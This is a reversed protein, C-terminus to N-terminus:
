GPSALYGAAQQHFMTSYIGDLLVLEDHTGTEVVRGGDLVVIKDAERVASLRHTIIVAVRGTRYERLQTHLRFEAEADLGSSPEDMILLDADERFLARAVAVRQWQGGSLTTRSSHGDSDGDPAFVRSLLTEYGRALRSLTRHVDVKRAAAVVRERDHLHRVDGIGVNLAASLDWVMYDQFVVSIRERLSQPSLERLDQGDWRIRGGNPKYLGCLLKVLSSKGAGNVGVLAVTSGAPLTLDVGRLVWDQDEGYRFWVDEFAIEERLPGAVQGREHVFAEAETVVDRFHEFLVLVHDLDALDRALSSLAAQSATLAALAVVIQGADLAGGLARAVLVTMGAGVALVGVGGAVGLMRAEHQDQRREQEAAATLHRRMEGLLFGSSGQLRIEQAAQADSQLMMYASARRREPTVELIMQARRRGLGIEVVLALVTTCVLVLVLAPDVLLLSVTFGAVTIASEAIGLASRVVQGPALQGAQEALELKNRYAPQEFHALGPLRNLATFLQLQTAVEVRRRLESYAFHSGVRSAVGVLTFAVLGTLAWVAKGEQRTGAADILLKTSWALGVPTVGQLIALLLAAAVCAPSAHWAM